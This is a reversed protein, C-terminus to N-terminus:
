AKQADWAAPNVIHVPKDGHYYAILQEVVGISMNNMGEFTFAATHPTLVVNDMDLLASNTPPENEFVDLGAGAIVGNKLAKYLDTENVIGGRAANILIASSKMLNLAKEDIMWKTEPILPVHISVIDSVKLLEELKVQEIGQEDAFATPWFPDYAVVKMQFGKARLAVCRGIAGLGILGLTKQWIELGMIKTHEWRNERLSRDCYIIKRAVNLILGFTHDAVAQNNAGPTHFVIANHRTAAAIDVTDLGAGMKAIAKVRPAMDLVADNVVLDNGCLIADARNLAEVFKPDQIGSGRMDILDMGSSKLQAMPTDNFACFPRSEILVTFKEM